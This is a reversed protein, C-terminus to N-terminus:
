LSGLFSYLCILRASPLCAHVADEVVVFSVLPPCCAVPPFRRPANSLRPLCV